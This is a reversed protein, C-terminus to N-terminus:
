FNKKFFNIGSLETECKFNEFDMVDPFLGISGSKEQLEIAGSWAEIFASLEKGTYESSLIIDLWETFVNQDPIIEEQETNKLASKLEITARDWPKNMTKKINKINTQLDVKTHQYIIWFLSPFDDLPLHLESWHLIFTPVTKYIVCENNGNQNFIDEMLELMNMEYENDCQALLWYGQSFPNFNRFWILECKKNDDKSIGIINLTPGFPNFIGWSLLATKKGLKFFENNLKIPEDLLGNIGCYKKFFDM